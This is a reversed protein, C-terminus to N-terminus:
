SEDGSTRSVLLRVVMLVGILGLSVNRVMPNAIAVFLRGVFPVAYVVKGVAQEQGVTWIDATPNADGKTTVVWAGSDLSKEAKVVRHTVPMGPNQPVSFTIVDGATLSEFRVPQVVVISGVHINPEMSGTFVIFPHWGVFVPGLVAAAVTLLLISFAATLAQGALSLRRLKGGAPESASAAPLIEGGAAVLSIPANM